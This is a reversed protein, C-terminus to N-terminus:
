AHTSANKDDEFYLHDNPLESFHRQDTADMSAKRKLQTAVITKVTQKALVLTNNKLRIAHVLRAIILFLVGFLVVLSITGWYAYRIVGPNLGISRTRNYLKEIFEFFYIYEFLFPLAFFGLALVYMFIEIIILIFKPATKSASPKLLAVGLPDLLELQEYIMRKNEKFELVLDDHLRKTIM